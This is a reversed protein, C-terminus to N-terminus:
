PNGLQARILVIVDAFVGARDGHANVDLFQNRKERGNLKRDVGDAGREFVALGRMQSDGLAVEQKLEANRGDIQSLIHEFDRM